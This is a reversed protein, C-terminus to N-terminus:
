NKGKSEKIAEYMQLKTRLVEIESNKAELQAELSEIKDELLEMKSRKNQEKKITDKMGKLKVSDSMHRLYGTSNMQITHGLSDALAKPNLGLLHGRHNYAHRLDHPKFGYKKQSFWKCTATTVPLSSKSKAYRKLPNKIDPLNLPQILNFEEIWNCGEPSLPVAVRYGTKTTNKICLFFETNNPDLIAPVTVDEGNYQRSEKDENNDADVTIWDGNKLTVPKDWNAINWAEHIRLGYTALLGYLFQWQPYRYRCKKVHPSPIFGNKYVEIIRKDSPVNRKKPKPNNNEKYQKIVEKFDTNNFYKLFEVLGNIVKTRANSNNDKSEVIQRVLSLSLYKNENGLIKEISNCRRYWSDDVTKSSQRQKFYHKKYQEVMEKCTLQKTQESTPKGILNNFWEWSFQNATLQNTVMQAKREAELIGNASCPIGGLGPNKQPRGNGM